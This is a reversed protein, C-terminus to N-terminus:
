RSCFTLRAWLHRHNAIHQYICRTVVRIVLNKKYLYVLWKMKKNLDLLDIFADAGQSVHNAHWFIAGKQFQDKDIHTIPLHKNEIYPEFTVAPRLWKQIRRVWCKCFACNPDFVFHAQNKM